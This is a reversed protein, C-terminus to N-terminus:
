PTPTSHRRAARRVEASWAASGGKAVALKDAGLRLVYPLGAARLERRLARGGAGDELGDDVAVVTTRAFTRRAAAPPAAQARRRLRGLLRLCAAASACVYLRIGFRRATLRLARRVLPDDDVAVVAAGQSPPALPLTLRALTGGHARPRLTLRGGWRRAAQAARFIGLGNGGAKTSAVPARGLAHRLVAPLGVGRDRVEVVARGRRLWLCVVVPTGAALSAHLANDLLHGLATAMPGARPLVHLQRWNARRVGAFFSSVKAPTVSSRRRAPSAETPTSEGVAPGDHRRGLRLRLQAAAGPGARLAAERLAVRVVLLLAVGEGGPARRAPASRSLELRHGVRAQGDQGDFVAGEPGGHRVRVRGKGTRSPTVAAYRAHLLEDSFLRVRRSASHLLPAFRGGGHALSLAVAELAAAPGRLDHAALAAREGWRADRTRSAWVARLEHLGAAAAVRRAVRRSAARRLAESVHRALLNAALSAAWCAILLGGLRHGDHVQVLDLAAGLVLAVPLVAGVIAALLVRVSLWPALPGSAPARQRRSSTPRRTTAPASALPAVLLALGVTWGLEGAAAASARAALAAHRCAFDAVLMLLLGHLATVARASRLRLNLALAQASVVATCATYAAALAHGPWPVCALQGMPTLVFSTQLGAAVAALAWTGRALRLRPGALLAALAGFAVVFAADPAYNFPYRSTAPRRLLYAFDGCWLAGLAMRLWLRAAPPGRYRWGAWGISVTEHAFWCPGVWASGVSWPLLAVAAWLGTRWAWGGSGFGLSRTRNQQAMNRGAAQTRTTVCVVTAVNAPPALCFCVSCHPM